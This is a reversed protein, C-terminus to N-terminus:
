SEIYIDFLFRFFFRFFLGQAFKKSKHNLEVLQNMAPMLPTVMFSAAFGIVIMVLVYLFIHQAYNLLPTFFAQILTTWMVFSIRSQLAKNPFCKLFFYIEIKNKKMNNLILLMLYIIRIILLYIVLYIIKFKCSFKDVLWGSIPSAILFAVAMSAYVLGVYTPSLSFREQIQLPLYPDPGTFIMANMFTGIALLTMGPDLLLTKYSQWATEKLIFDDDDDNDNPQLDQRRKEVYFLRAVLDLALVFCIVWFPMRRGAADAIAGSVPPGLLSGLGGITMIAGMAKGQEDAALCTGIMTFAATWTASAALGQFSRAVLLLWYWSSLAFLITSIILM